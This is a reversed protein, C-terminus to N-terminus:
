CTPKLTIKPTQTPNKTETWRRAKTSKTATHVVHCPQLCQWSRKYGVSKYTYGASKYSLEVRREDGGHRGITIPCLTHTYYPGRGSNRGLSNRQGHRRPSIEGEAHAWCSQPRGAAAMCASCLGLLYAAGGKREGVSYGRGEVM